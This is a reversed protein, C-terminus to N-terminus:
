GWYEHELKALAIQELKTEIQNTVSSDYIDNRYKNFGDYFNSYNGCYSTGSKPVERNFRVEYNDVLSDLNKM